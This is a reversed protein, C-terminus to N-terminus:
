CQKTTNRKNVAFVEQRNVVLGLLDSDDSQDIVNRSQGLLKVRRMRQLDIRYEDHQQLQRFIGCATKDGVNIYTNCGIYSSHYDGFLVTIMFLVVSRLVVEYLEDALM